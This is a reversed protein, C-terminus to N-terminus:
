PATLLEPRAIRAQTVVVRHRGPMLRVVPDGVRRGDVAVTSAASVPPVFHGVSGFPIDYTATFCADGDVEWAVSVPGQDADVAAKAWTLGTAPRPQLLVKRHGPELPDTSLGAVWRYIWDVVSGYAYHNFSLMSGVSGDPLLLRGDHLSGDPRIADWREWVTTAGHEVQYLWSPAQRRLLMLFAEDLHDTAALAPLVLPTGLFGTRIAGMGARVLRALDRRGRGAGARCWASSSPLRAARGPDHAGHDGWRRWTRVTVDDALDDYPRRRPNGLVEM